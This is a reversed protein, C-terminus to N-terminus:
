TCTKQMFAERWTGKRLHSANPIHYEEAFKTDLGTWLVPRREAKKGRIGFVYIRPWSFGWPSLWEQAMFSLVQATFFFKELSGCESVCSSKNGISTIFNELTLKKLDVKPSRQQVLSTSSLYETEYKRHLFKELLAPTSSNSSSRPLRNKACMNVEDLRDGASQNGACQHIGNCPQAEEPHLLFLKLVTFTICFFFGEKHRAWKYFCSKSLKLM